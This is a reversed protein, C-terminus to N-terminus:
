PNFSELRVDIDEVTQAPAVTVLTDYLGSPEDVDSVGNDNLDQWTEIKYTGAKLLALSYPTRGTLELTVTKSLSDDIRTCRTDFCFSASVYTTVSETPPPPPPPPTTTSGLAKAADVLGAGCNSPTPRCQSSTLPSSAEKLRTLVTQFSLGPDNALMLAVLGAVHPSAMSTGQYFGYAYGSSDQVTSLVGAPYEKGNVTFSRSLDGGPAMLDLNAGYNSYPARDGTPGTAGVTIVGDCNGPFTTAANVNANGAAVVVIIGDVALEMFLDNADNPCSTNINGGLSLNIVKAPKPNDPIGPVSRGAAWAIGALIDAYSGSANIGLVRVPLLSAGWSVGSIGLTNDSSAGVTGAVHSGHYESKGGEDKPNNDRGNTDGANAADTIFDYGSLTKPALDPHAVIGTDVIAVVVESGVGDEIDWAPPLNMAGYHWQLPYLEDNPTKFTHLRWNPHAEAIDARAELTKALERTQTENLGSARYLYAGSTTTEVYRLQVGSVTLPAFRQASLTTEFRIIIESSIVTATEDAYLDNRLNPNITALSTPELTGPPLIDGSISATGPDVTPQPIQELQLRLSENPPTLNSLTGRYDGPDEQGNGNVDKRAILTYPSQELSFSFIGTTGSAKVTVSPANTCDGNKCALILTNVVDGDQPATVAGSLTFTAPTPSIPESCSSLLLLTSTLAFLLNHRRQWYSGM